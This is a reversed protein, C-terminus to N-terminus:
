HKSNLLFDFVSGEAIMLQAVRHIGSGILRWRHRIAAVARSCELDPFSIIPYSQGNTSDRQSSNSGM